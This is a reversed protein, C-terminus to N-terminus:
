AAHKCHLLLDTPQSTPPLAAPCSHVQARISAVTVRLRLLRQVGGGSAEASL